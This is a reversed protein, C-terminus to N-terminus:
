EILRPRGSLLREKELQRRAEALAIRKKEARRIKNRERRVLESMEYAEREENSVKALAENFIGYATFLSFKNEEVLWALTWDKPMERRIDGVVLDVIRDRAVVKTM